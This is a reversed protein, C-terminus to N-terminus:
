KAFETNLHNLKQIMVSFIAFNYQTLTNLEAFFEDWVIMANEFKERLCAETASEDSAQAKAVKKYIHMAMERQLLEIEASMSVKAVQTWISDVNYEEIQELLWSMHFRKTLIYYTSMFDSKVGNLNHTAYAINILPTYYRLYLLKEKIDDDIDYQDLVEDRQSIENVQDATLRLQVSGRLAEIDASISKILLMNNEHDNLDLNQILWKAAHRLLSRIDDYIDLFMAKDFSFAHNHLIKTIKRLQYIDVALHYAVVAVEEKCGTEDVMQRVYSIGMDSICVNALFTSIIELRLPHKVLWEHYKETFIAPFSERLYYLCMTSKTFSSQKLSKILLSKSRSLLIALESRTISQQNSAVRQAITERDPIKDVEPNILANKVLMEAYRIYIELKSTLQMETISLALNQLYVNRLVIEVVAPALKDLLKNRQTKTIADDQQLSQLLIKINVENDSCLVGGANDIFDTNMLGGQLLYETRAEQTFGLNGGEGVIRARVTSAAVRCADNAPDRCEKDNQQTARVYTGIGGNWLLDVPAQLIAQILKNPTLKVEKIQLARAVEASIIIFKSDRPYIGGGKSIQAKEYDAWSSRPLNFIRQREKFSTAPIPDPDLFIHRHDFAAILKVTKSLLLGNGFVDGSMDGIGVVTVEDVEPNMGLSAFHWLVSQWAGKATIGLIKHDYGNKGGSAFADDLWFNFNRSIANATDSFKATGKDAAVVLYPDDEDYRLVRQPHAVEQEIYNDSIELLSQIFIMYCSRAEEYRAEPTNFEALLTPIFVGKAGDPVIIANKLDQAQMLGLVETRYDETRDSWRIGGRAVKSMRLHVGEVRISFVFTEIFPLPLPMESITEPKLKFCLAKRKEMFYNTRITANICEVIRTFVRDENLSKVAEMESKIQTFHNTMASERNKIDPNFKLEFLALVTEVLKPYALLTEVMYAFSLSFSTQKTYHLYALLMDVQLCSVTTMGLLQNIKENYMKRQMVNILCQVVEDGRSGALDIADLKTVVRIEIISVFEDTSYNITFLRERIVRLGLNDLIPMIDALVATERYQYIKLLWGDSDIYQTDKSLTAIINRKAGVKEINEVDRLIVEADVNDLYKNPMSNVINKIIRTAEHAEYKSNILGLLKEKTPLVISEVKNRLLDQDIAMSLAPDVRITFYVSALNSESFVPTARIESSHFFLAFFAEIRLRIRTSYFEKPTYVLVTFFSKFIDRRVFVGTKALDQIQLIGMATEELEKTPAQFLEDTPLNKLIHLLFRSAFRSPIASRHIVDRIKKRLLPIKTPDSDYADSSLLGVFRVEGQIKGSEDFIRVGLLDTYVDRHINSKTNTKTFYFLDSDLHLADMSAKSLFPRVVATTHKKQRLLGLGANKEKKLELFAKKQEDYKLVYARAGLFTFHEYIWHLFHRSEDLTTNDRSGSTDLHQWSNIADLLKKQMPRWDVVASKVDKLVKELKEKLEELYLDGGLWDVEFYGFLESQTDKEDINCERVKHTADRTVPLEAVTFFRNIHHGSRNLEIRISDIVFPIDKMAIKVETITKICSSTETLTRNDIDIKGTSTDAESIFPWACDFIEVAQKDSLSRFYLSSLNTFFHEALSIFATDDKHYKYYKSAATLSKVKNQSNPPKPM